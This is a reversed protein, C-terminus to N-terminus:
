GTTDKVSKEKEGCYGCHHVSKYKRCSGGAGAPSGSSTKRSLLVSYKQAISWLINLLAVGIAIIVTGSTIILMALHVARAVCLAETTVLILNQDLVEQSVM